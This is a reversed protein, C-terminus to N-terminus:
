LRYGDCDDLDMVERAEDEDRAYWCIEHGSEVEWYVEYIQEM